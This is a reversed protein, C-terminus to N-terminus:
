RDLLGDTELPSSERMKEREREGNGRAREVAHM